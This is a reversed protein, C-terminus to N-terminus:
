IDFVITAKWGAPTQLVEFRHLTVAKADVGQTHRAPDLPEGSLTAELQNGHANSTITVREPRLLLRESDKLFILEQLFRYLLLDMQDHSVKVTQRKRRQVSEIDEIQIQLLAEAAGAFLEEVTEAVVEVAVDARTIDELFRFPM